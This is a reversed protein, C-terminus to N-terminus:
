GRMGIRYIGWLNLRMPINIELNEVTVTDGIKFKLPGLTVVQSKGRYFQFVMEYNDGPGTHFIIVQMSTAKIGVTEGDVCIKKLQEETLEFRM